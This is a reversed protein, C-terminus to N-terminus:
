RAAIVYAGRARIKFDQLRAKAEPTLDVSVTHITKPQGEPARYTILYRERLREFIQDLPVNKRDMYLLDGGTAEILPQVDAADPGRNKVATGATPILGSLTINGQWMADRAARDSVQRRGENLTVMVIALAAEPRSDDRLYETAAAIAENLQAVGPRRPTAQIAAAVKDPRACFGITLLQTGGFGVVAVHDRHDLKSLARLAVSDLRNRFPTMGATNEMLLVIDLPQNAFDFSAIEKAERDDYILFDSQRLDKVPKDHSLVEIPVSVFEDRLNRRSFQAVPPEKWEKPNGYKWDDPNSPPKFNDTNFPRLRRDGPGSVSLMLALGFRPGQFYSLRISHIGGSLNVISSRALPPHDGDNDIVLRQDIYLKSGDDSEVKFEYDGPKDIYFRGTFDLAFWEVRDTIGPFGERFDRPYIYLGKAYITGVPELREFDPLVWTNPRLFYIKGTLGGPIVVTTGFTALDDSQARSVAPTLCVVALLVRAGSQRFGRILM